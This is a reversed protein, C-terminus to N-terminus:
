SSMQLKRHDRRKPRLLAMRWPFKLYEQVRLCQEEVEEEHSQNGPVWQLNGAPGAVLRCKHHDGGGGGVPYLFQM